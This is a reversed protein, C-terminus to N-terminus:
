PKNKLKKRKEQKENYKKVNWRLPHSRFHKIVRYFQKFIYQFIDFLLYSIIFFVFVTICVAMSFFLVTTLRCMIM